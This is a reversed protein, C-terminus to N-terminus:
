QVAGFIELDMDLLPALSRAAVAAPLRLHIDAISTSFASIEPNIEIITAGGAKAHHPIAAAPYVEGTSGTILMTDCAEAERQSTAAALPPIGEGFFIFDPKYIGGAPSCPPLQDDSLGQLDISDANVKEGSKTCVLLRSNGHYESLNRSGARFHLDDINQTVLWKLKGRRELEALFYHADNPTRNAFNSYFIERIAKWSDRPNQHFYSLELVVPDYQNWLGGEGRFPPIGSEVSIGAGTFAVLHKARKIAQAALEITDM